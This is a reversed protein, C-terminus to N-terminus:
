ESFTIKYVDQPLTSAATFYWVKYNIPKYGNAGAVTVTKTTWVDQVESNIGVQFITINTFASEPVAIIMQRTGVPSTYQWESTSAAETSGSLARIVSGTIDGDELAIDLCGYFYKRFGNFNSTKTSGTATTSKGDYFDDNIEVKCDESFSKVNSAVYLTFSEFNESAVPTYTLGTQNVTITNVGDDVYMPSAEAPISENAAPTPISYATSGTEDAKFGAVSAVLNYDGSTQATYTKSYKGTLMAGDQGKKYGDNYGNTTVSYSNTALSATAGCFYLMTGAEFNGGTVSSGGANKITISPNKSTINWGYSVTPTPWTVKSFLKTFIEEISTGAPIVKNGDGDTWGADSPWTECDDALPGGAVIITNEIVSSHSASIIAAVTDASTAYKTEIAGSLATVADELNSVDADLAYPTLDIDVSKNTVTLASGNVKIEEIANDELTEVTETLSVLSGSVALIRENMEAADEPHAQIWAAIEELTDLAEQADEPILAETLASMAINKVYGSDVSLTEGSLILGDSITLENAPGQAGEAGQPGQAGEAGDEGKEGQPGQAGELGQPGQTGDEGKEGQPGQAGEAGDEGKEGQPGQTGEIGQPGQAGETGDEGKEGQPGQVGEAGDEGKEGQPGQAGEAGDEGKEGQPGQDGKDGDAGKIGQPGQVGDEGKEGQPGQAGDIGAPGQAGDAGDEGKEGQPGQPGQIDGVNKWSSSPADWVYLEGNVLYADGIEGTPHAEELEELSDYSGLINVGKGDEGKEGQPGQVGESGQAGELGQPGQAGEAGIPGQNGKEGTDGKPGQAGEVGDEGKPGQTGDEGKTGQAGDIGKPGQDGKPGQPGQAGDEGKAGQAGDEGKPGQAGDAGAPGQAGDEGKEGQPGQAGDEGKDGQAGDAGAPGQAGNEGATGQPGQPGQPGQAGGGGLSTVDIRVPDITFDEYYLEIFTKDAETVVSGSVIYNDRQWDALIDTLDAATGIEKGNYLLKVSSNETDASLALGSTVSQPKLEWQGGVFWYEDPINEGRPNLTGGSLIKVTMGPYRYKASIKELDAVTDLPIQFPDLPRKGNFFLNTDMAVSAEPNKLLAVLESGTM